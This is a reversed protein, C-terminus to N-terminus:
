RTFGAQLKALAIRAAETEASKKSKGTGTSLVTDGMRIEVTFTRNHPPGMVETVCYSPAKQERAQILEQLRSKFDVEAGLIAATKIQPEMLKLIITRAVDLGKDLYIAAILAEFGGALNVPKRRGGSAEEGKGLFLHEGLNISRAAHALAERRVTAARLKTMGGEDLLPYDKYLKEAIIVGLVADGLFELRENSVPAFGANENIYSSHAMAQELLALNHFEVGLLEQLSTLDPM